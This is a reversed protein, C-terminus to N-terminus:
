GSLGASKPSLNLQKTRKAAETFRYLDDLTYTTIASASRQDSSSHTDVFKESALIINQASFNLFIIVLSKYIFTIRCM